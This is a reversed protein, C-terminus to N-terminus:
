RRAPLALPVSAAPRHMYAGYTADPDEDPTRSSHHSAATIYLALMLATALLAASGLVLGALAQGGNNALGTRAKNRGIAGLVIALVGLIVGFVITPSFVIGVIGLVMAATGLANDPRQAPQWGPAGWATGYAPQGYGYPGPAYPGQPHQPHPGPIGQWYPQQPHQPHQPHPGYPGGQYASPTGPGTPAQPIPPVAPAAPADGVPVAPAPAPAAAPADQVPAADAAAASAEDGAPAQPPVAASDPKDLSVREGPPAWPNQERQERQEQQAESNGDKGSM